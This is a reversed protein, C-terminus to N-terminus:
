PYNNPNDTVLGETQAINLLRNDASVFVLQTDPMLALSSKVYLASALQVADYAKLPYQLVLQSAREALTKDVEIVQYQEDLHYRFASIIEVIKSEDLSGERQRRALASFVEVRTIRVMTLLNNRHPAVLEQVWASGTETVYRKVLASSDLFYINIM